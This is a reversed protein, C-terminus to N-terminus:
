GFSRPRALRIAGKRHDPYRKQVIPKIVRVNNSIVPAIPFIQVIIHFGPKIVRNIM